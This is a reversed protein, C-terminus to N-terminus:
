NLFNLKSHIRRIVLKFLYNIKMMNRSLLQILKKIEEDSQAAHRAGMTLLCIKDGSINGNRLLFGNARMPIIMM